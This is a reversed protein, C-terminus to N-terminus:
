LLRALIARYATQKGQGSSAQRSTNSPTPQVPRNTNTAAHPLLYADDAM